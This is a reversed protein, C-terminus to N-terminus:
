LRIELIEVLKAVTVELAEVRRQLQPVDNAEPEGECIREFKSGAKPGPAAPEMDQMEDLMSYRGSTSM